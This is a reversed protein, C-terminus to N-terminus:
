RRQRQRDDELRDDALRDAQLREANLRDQLRREQLLAGQHRDEGQRDFTVDRQVHERTIRLREQVQIEDAQRQQQQRVAVDRQQQRRLAQLRDQERRADELRSAQAFQDTAARPDSAPAAPGAPPPYPRAAAQWAPAVTAAMAAPDFHFHDAPQADMWAGVTRLREMSIALNRFVMRDIVADLMAIDGLLLGAGAHGRHHMALLREFSMHRRGRSAMHDILEHVAGRFSLREAHPSQWRPPQHFAMGDSHSGGQDDLLYRSMSQLDCYDYARGAGACSHANAGPRRAQDRARTVARPNSLFIRAAIQQDRRFQGHRNAAMDLLEGSALYGGPRIDALQSLLDASHSLDRLMSAQGTAAGAGMSAAASFGAPSPPFHVAAASFM